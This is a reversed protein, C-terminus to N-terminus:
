ARGSDTERERERQTERKIANQTTWTHLQTTTTNVMAVTLKFSGRNERPVQKCYKNVSQRSIVKM